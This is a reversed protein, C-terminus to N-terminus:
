FKALFAGFILQGRNDSSLNKAYWGQPFLIKIILQNYLMSTEYMSFM